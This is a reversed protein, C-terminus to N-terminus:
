FLKNFQEQNIVHLVFAGQLSLCTNFNNTDKFLYDYKLKSLYNPTILEHPNDKYKIITLGYDDNLLTYFEINQEQLKTISKWVDGNWEDVQIYGRDYYSAQAKRNKPITDHVCICGNPNLHKLSNIIDRDVCEENHFGDIFIIDYKKNINMNAFMEDSTMEYTLKDLYKLNKSTIDNSEKNEINIKSFNIADNIGIELYSKYNNKQILYNIVETHNM